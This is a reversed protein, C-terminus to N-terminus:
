GPQHASTTRPPGQLCLRPRSRRGPAARRRHPCRMVDAPDVTATSPSFLAKQFTKVRPEIERAELEGLQELPVGNARGRRLLEELVPLENEDRAVVLKGCRNVRLGKEDCYEQMQLNGTRTFRAKLSDATYYFGAHLVGSNRGSAHLGPSKEKELLRVRAHPHRRRLESAIHVGMVGAGVVVFDAAEM